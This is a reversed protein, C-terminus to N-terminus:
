LANTEARDCDPGVFGFLDQRVFPYEWSYKSHRGTARRSLARGWDSPTPVSSRGRRRCARSRARPEPEGAGPVPFAPRGARRLAVAYPRKRRKEGEYQGDPARWRAPAVRRRRPATLP